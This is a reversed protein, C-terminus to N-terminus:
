YFVQGKGMSDHRYRECAKQSKDGYVVTSTVVATTQEGYMGRGSYNDHITCEYGEAMLRRALMEAQIDTM